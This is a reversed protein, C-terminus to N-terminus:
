LIFSTYFVNDARVCFQIDDRIVPGICSIVELKAHPDLKDIKEILIQAAKLNNVALQGIVSEEVVPKKTLPVLEARKIHDNVRIFFDGAYYRTAGNGHEIVPNPHNLMNVVLMAKDITLKNPVGAIEERLTDLVLKSALMRIQAKDTACM